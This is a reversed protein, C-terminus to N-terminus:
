NLINQQTSMDATSPINTMKAQDIILFAHKNHKLVEQIQPIHKAFKVADCFELVEQILVRETADLGHARLAKMVEGTTSELAQFEFRREFFRRLIESMELYYTKYAGKKLLDSSKLHYLAKYAEEHASLMMEPSKLHDHTTKKLKLWLVLGAAFVFTLAAVIWIWIKQQLPVVGKVGRIDSEPDKEEAVSQITVYLSQTQISKTVGDATQYLISIPRIVFEGLQYGTIVYNKGEYIKGEEEYSFDAEQKIEFDDLSNKADVGQIEVAPDHITQVKFNIRDGITIFAQDVSTKVRIENQAFLPHTELNGLLFIFFISFILFLTRM